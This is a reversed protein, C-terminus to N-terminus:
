LGGLPGESVMKAAYRVSARVGPTMYPHGVPDLKCRVGDPTPTLRLHYHQEFGEDISITMILADGAESFFAERFITMYGRGKVTEGVLSAIRERFGGRAQADIWDPGDAQHDNEHSDTSQGTKRATVMYTDRGMTRWKREYKTAYDRDGNTVVPGTEFIADSAFIDRTKDAYWGVDTALSFTGGTELRSGILRAFEPRAVRRDSHRRKPWPCPFNMYIESVSAPEFALSLLHRADGHLLRVNQLGSGLARRAAKAICWQSVEIGVITSDPRAKALYEIYEGNGFGIEVVLAGDRGSFRTEKPGRLIGEFNWYM